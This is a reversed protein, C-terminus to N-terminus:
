ENLQGMFLCTKHRKLSYGPMQKLNEFEFFQSKVKYSQSKLVKDLDVEAVKVTPKPELLQQENIHWKDQM